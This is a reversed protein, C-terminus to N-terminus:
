VDNEDSLFIRAQMQHPFDVVQTLKDAASVKRVGEDHLDRHRKDPNGRGESRQVADRPLWGRKIHKALELAKEPLFMKEGGGRWALQLPSLRAWASSKASKREM